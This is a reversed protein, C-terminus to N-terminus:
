DIEGTRFTVGMSAFLPPSFDSFVSVGCCQARYQASFPSSVGDPTLDIITDAKVNDILSLLFIPAIITSILINKFVHANKQSKMMM